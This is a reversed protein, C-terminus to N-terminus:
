QEFIRLLSPAASTPEQTCNIIADLFVNFGFLESAKRSPFPPSVTPSECLGDSSRFHGRRRARRRGGPLTSAGDRDGGGRPRLRDLHRCGLFRHALFKAAVVLHTTERSQQLDDGPQRLRAGVMAEVYKGMVLELTIAGELMWPVPSWFKELARGLAHASEGPIADPGFTQRRREAEASTLGITSGAGAIKPPAEIATGEDAAAITM